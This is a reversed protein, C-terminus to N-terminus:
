RVSPVAGRRSASHCGGRGKCDASVFAATVAGRHGPAWTSRRSLAAPRRGGMVTVSPCTMMPGHRLGEHIPDLVRGTGCGQQRRGPRRDDRGRIETADADQLVAVQEQQRVREAVDVDIGAAQPQVVEVGPHQRARDEADVAHPRREQAACDAALWMLVIWSVFGSM